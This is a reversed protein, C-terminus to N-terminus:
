TGGAELARLNVFARSFVEQLPCSRAMSVLVRRVSISVVAGIKLLRTRITGCQAKAMRTGRLGLERLDNMLCYAVSSLWLRIQNARMTATSTRDAFLDLQQEKIRNEMDGRACYDEEYLKRAAFAEASLSTAIFRPNAGKDLFEAKGIVRRQRSWSKLTQYKLEMFVRAAQGTLEHWRRAAEMAPTLMRELRENRSLGFVYDVGHEECWSMLADRAFGSDARLIIQVGPWAERLRGVIRQVEELAGDSADVNSPRLKACLLERGCFIYLPLYCYCDYFGHFFRGEQQGHLPDHTADLDIMLRQPTGRRRSIFKGVFLDAAAEEECVVRKYRDHAGRGHELRNLTSKGALAKGKDQECRRDQGTPDAKGCVVALLPDHRLLDHDNLDEYGLALGFVRQGALEEVTHEILLPSRHDTFCRALDRVWGRKAEVERLLLSGADSSVEGGRFDAVVRRRLLGQFEFEKQSCETM